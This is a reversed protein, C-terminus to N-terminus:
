SRPPMTRRSRAERRSPNASHPPDSSLGPPQKGAKRDTWSCFDLSHRVLHVACTQVMAEPFTATM